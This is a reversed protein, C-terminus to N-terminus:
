TPFSRLELSVITLRSEPQQAPVCPVSRSASTVAYGDNAFSFDDGGERPRATPNRWRSGLRWGMDTGDSRPNPHSQEGRPLREQRSLLVPSVGPSPFRRSLPVRQLPLWRGPELATARGQSPRPTSLGSRQPWGRGRDGPSRVAGEAWADNAARRCRTKGVRRQWSRM